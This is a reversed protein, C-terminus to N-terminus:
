TSYSFTSLQTYIYPDPLSTGLFRIYITDSLLIVITNTSCKRQDAYVYDAHQDKEVKPKSIAFCDEEKDGKSNLSILQATEDM